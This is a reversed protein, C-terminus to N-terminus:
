EQEKKKEIQVLACQRLEIENSERETAKFKRKEKETFTM